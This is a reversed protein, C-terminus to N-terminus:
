FGSDSSDIEKALVRRIIESKTEGTNLSAWNLYNLSKRDIFFNFRISKTGASNEEVFGKVYNAVTEETYNAFKIIEENLSVGLAGEANKHRSLLLIPKKMHLANAVQFGVLFSKESVEAVIIDSKSIADLTERYIDKWTKEFDPKKFRAYADELWEDALTVGEDKLAKVILRYM